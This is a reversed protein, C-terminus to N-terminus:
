KNLKSDVQFFTLYILGLKKKETEKRKRKRELREMIKRWKRKKKKHDNGFVVTVGREM